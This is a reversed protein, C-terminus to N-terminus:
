KRYKAPPEGFADKFMRSFHPTNCFGCAEAIESINKNTYVLMDRAAELRCRRIEGEITRGLLRKFKMEMGRRSGDQPRLVDKVRIGECARSRIRQLVDAVVPDKLSYIDSSNRVVLQGPSILQTRPAEKGQFLLHLTEAALRGIEHPRIDISSLSVSSLGNDIPDDNVGLVAISEPVARGVSEAVSIVYRAEQDSMCFVATDDPLSMLFTEMSKKQLEGHVPLPAHLALKEEFGERRLRSAPSNKSQVYAFSKFGRELFHRAALRGVERNDATVTWVGPPPDECGAINMVWVGQGAWQKSRAPSYFSGVVADPPQNKLLSLVEEQKWLHCTVGWGWRNGRNTELIGYLIERGFRWDVPMELHIHRPKRCHNM